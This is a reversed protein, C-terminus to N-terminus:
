HRLTESPNEGFRAHYDASFRGLHGFGWRLAVGSVQAGHSAGQLEAHARDLRLEKLYQMPTVGCFAKFGTYLSRLSM